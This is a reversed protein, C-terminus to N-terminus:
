GQWDDPPEPKSSDALSPYTSRTFACIERRLGQRYAAVAEAPLVPYDTATADGRLPKWRAGDAPRDALDASFDHELSRGLGVAQAAWREREPLFLKLRLSDPLGLVPEYYRLARLEEELLVPWAGAEAPALTTEPASSRLARLHHDLWRYHSKERITKRQAARGTQRRPLLAEARRLLQREEPELNIAGWRQRYEWLEEYSRVEEASWGLARLEQARSGEEKVM